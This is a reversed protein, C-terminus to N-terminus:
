NTRKLLNMINVFRVRETVEPCIKIADAPDRYSLRGLKNNIKFELIDTAFDSQLYFDRIETVSDKGIITDKLLRCPKQNLKEEDPLSLLENNLIKSYIEKCNYCDKTTVSDTLGNYQKSKYYKIVYWKNKRKAIINYPIRPGYFADITHLIFIDYQPSFKNFIDSFNNEEEIKSHIIKKDACSTTFFM